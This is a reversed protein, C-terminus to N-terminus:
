RIPPFSMSTRGFIPRLWVRGFARPEKEDVIGGFLRLGHRPAGRAPDIDNVALSFGIADGTRPPSAGAGIETWPIRVRYRTTSSAEDREVRVEIAPRVTHAPLAPDWSRELYAVGPGDGAGGISLEFVRHGGLTRSSDAGAFGAEWPKLPDLDFGIQISDQAWILSPDSSANGQRHEDDTVDVELTLATADHLLRARAGCDSAPVDGGFPDRGTFDAWGDAGDRPLTAGTANADGAPEAALVPFATWEVKRERTAGDPLALRLLSRRREGPATAPLPLFVACREGPALAIDPSFLPAGNEELSLRTSVTEDRMNSRLAVELAPTEDGAAWRLEASDISVPSRLEYPQVAWAGDEAPVFAAYPGDPPDSEPEVAWFTGRPLKPLRTVGKAGLVPLDPNDPLRETELLVPLTGIRFSPHDPGTDPSGNALPAGLGDIARKIRWPFRARAVAGTAGEETWAMLQLRNERRGAVLHVGPAPSLHCLPKAAAFHRSVAAFAAYGSEPRGDPGILSFAAEGPNKARYDLVFFVLADIGQSWALALSRSVYRAQTARDVPPQWTGQAATWGFETLYVPMDARGHAALWDRLAAIKEIFEGEPPTGGVYAHMDLFDLSELLGGEEIASLDRIRISYLCPGGIRFSPDAAKLGARVARAYDAIQVPSGKFHALPENYISMDRPLSHTRAYAAVARSVDAWDKAPHFPNGFSPMKVDEPMTWLPLGFSFVGVQSLGDRESYPPQAPLPAAAAGSSDPSRSGSGAQTTSQSSSSPAELSGFRSAEDRTVTRFSSMQRNWRAGALRVLAPDGHVTWIGFVSNTRWTEPIPAGVVTAALRIEKSPGERSAAIVRIDYWGTEPLDLAWRGPSGNGDERAVTCPTWPADPDPSRRVSAAVNDIREPELSEFTIRARDAAFVLGAEGRWVTAFDPGTGMSSDPDTGTAAAGFDPDTGTAAAGFDPDTGTAPVEFNPDTGMASDPDTGMQPIPGTGTKALRFDPPRTAPDDIVLLVCDVCVSSARTRIRLTAKAPADGEVRVSGLRVWSAGARDATASLPTADATSPLSFELDAGGGPALFVRAWADYAGAPLAAAALDWGLTHWPQDSNGGRMGMRTGDPASFRGWWRDDPSQATRFLTRTTHSVVPFEDPATGDPAASEGELYLWGSPEQPLPTDPPPAAPHVLVACAASALAMLPLAALHTTLRM